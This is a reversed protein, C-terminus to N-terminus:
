RRAAQARLPLSPQVAEASPDVLRKRQETLTDHVGAAGVTIIGLTILLLWGALFLAINLVMFSCWLGFGGYFGRKFAEGPTITNTQQLSRRSVPSVRVIDETLM